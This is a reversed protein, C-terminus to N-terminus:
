HVGVERVAVGWTGDARIGAISYRLVADLLGDPKDGLTTSPLAVIQIAPDGVTGAGAIHRHGHCVLVHNRPGRARYRALIAVLLDADIATEYWTEPQLFRADRWVHHHTAVLLPGRVRQLTRELEALQAAGFWGVANSLVHTSPHRCSDLLVTTVQGRASAITDFLPFTNLAGARDGFARERLARRTLAFDHEFPRNFCIDHNGPLLRHSLGPVSDVVEAWADWEADDGTDVEDGCWLVTSPAHKAVHRLVRRLAGIISHRTPLTPYPWQARDEELECPTRGPAVLHTDSILTCVPALEHADVFIARSPRLVPVRRVRVGIRLAQAGGTTALAAGWLLASPIASLALVPPLGARAGAITTAPRRLVYSGALTVLSEIRARLSPV